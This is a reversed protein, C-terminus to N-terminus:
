FRQRHGERAVHFDTRDYRKGKKSKEVKNYYLRVKEVNIIKFFRSLVASICKLQFLRKHGAKLVEARRVLGGAQKKLSKMSNNNFGYDKFLDPYKNLFIDIQDKKSILSLQLETDFLYDFSGFLSREVSVLYHSEDHTAIDNIAGIFLIPKDVLWHKELEITLIPDYRYREGRSLKQEWSDIANSKSVMTSVSSRINKEIREAEARDAKEKARKQIYSNVLFGAVVLVVIIWIVKKM